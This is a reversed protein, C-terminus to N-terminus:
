TKDLFVTLNLQFEKMKHDVFISRISSGRSDVTYMCNTITDPGTPTYVDGENTSLEITYDDPVNKLYAKLDGATMKTM